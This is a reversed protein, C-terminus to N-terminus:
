GNDAEAFVKDFVVRRGIEGIEAGAAVDEEDVGGMRFFNDSVNM